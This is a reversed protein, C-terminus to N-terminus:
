LQRQEQVVIILVIELGLSLCKRGGLCPEEPGWSESRALGLDSNRSHELRLQTIYNCCDLFAAICAKDHLIFQTRRQCTYQMLNERMGDECCKRLEKSQYEGATPARVRDRGEGPRQLPFKGM